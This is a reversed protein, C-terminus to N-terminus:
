TLPSAPVLRVRSLAVGLQRTDPNNSDNDSPRVTHAVNFGICVRGPTQCLWDAPIRASIRGAPIEPKSTLAVPHGNVSVTLDMWADRSAAYKVDCQLEHEGASGLKLTLAAARDTWCYWEGDRFERVHWGYGHIPQDFTYDAADCLAASFPAHARSAKRSHEILQEAYRYLDLDLSTLEALAELEDPAHDRMPRRDPTTNDRRLSTRAQEGWEPNILALTEPLHDALLVGDCLRLHKRAVELIRDPHGEHAAVASAGALYETQVNGMTRRAVDPEARLFDRLTGYQNVRQLDGLILEAAAEGIQPAISRIEIALRPTRQYYYASLAREVPQRLCTLVFPRQGFREVFDYDLHGAVFQYRDLLGHELTASLPPDLLSAQASFQHYLFRKISTGATKPVHLFLMRPIRTREIM